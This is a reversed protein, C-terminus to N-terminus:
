ETGRMNESLRKRAKQETYYPVREGREIMDIFKHAWGQRGEPKRPQSVIRLCEKIMARGQPTPRFDHPLTASNSARERAAREEINETRRANLRDWADKPTPMKGSEKAWYGLLGMVENYDYEKLTEWWHVLAAKTPHPKGYVDALGALSATVENMHSQQM